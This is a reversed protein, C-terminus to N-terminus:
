QRPDALCGEAREVRLPLPFGQRRRGSRFQRLAIETIPVANRMVHILSNWERQRDVVVARAQLYMPALWLRNGSKSKLLAHHHSLRAAIEAKRDGAGDVGVLERQAQFQAAQFEFALDAGFGGDRMCQRRLVQREPCLKRTLSLFQDFVPTVFVPTLTSKQRCRSPAAASLGAHVRVRSHWFGNKCPN